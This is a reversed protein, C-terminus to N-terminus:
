SATSHAPVCGQLLPLTPMVPPEASPMVALEAAMAASTGDEILTTDVGFVSAIAAEIQADAYHERSLRRASEAILRTIAERDELTAQRVEFDM